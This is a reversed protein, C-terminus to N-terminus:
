RDEPKIFESLNTLDVRKKLTMKLLDTKMIEEASDFILALIVPQIKSPANQAIQACLIAAETIQQEITGKIVLEVPTAGNIPKEDFKSNIKLM